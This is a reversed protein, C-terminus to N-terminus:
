RKKRVRFHLITLMSIPRCSRFAVIDRFPRLLANSSASGLKLLFLLFPVCERESEPFAANELPVCSELDALGLTSMRIYVTTRLPM